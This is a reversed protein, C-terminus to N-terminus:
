RIVHIHPYAIRIGETTKFKDLIEKYIDSKIKRLKKAEVIYRVIVQYSSDQFELRIQPTVHVYDSMGRGLPGYDRVTIKKMDEAGEKMMEGVVASAAEKVTKEALERDSEYTVSVSIEDWIYKVDLTYNTISKTLLLSNPFTVIKGTPENGEPGVERLLTYMITIDIVDGEVDEIKIRDNIKFPKRTVIMVWAVLCSIPTQMAFTLGFGILGLSMLFTGINEVLISVAMLFGLFWIVYTYVNTVTEPESFRIRGLFREIADKTSEIIIKTIILVLLSLFIKPLYAFVDFNVDPLLGFGQLVIALVISALILIVYIKKM